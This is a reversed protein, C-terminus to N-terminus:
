PSATQFSRVASWISSQGTTNWAQVRWYYRTNPKLKEGDLFQYNPTSRATILKEQLGQSFANDVAIQLSYQQFTTGAPLSSARWALRPTYGINLAKNAPSVLAPTSPPNASMFSGMTWTSPGNVGNARVRWYITRNQPLSKAPTYATEVPKASLFLTSFNSKVSIQITYSDSGDVASWKFPPRPTLATVGEAPETLSAPLLAARLTFPKSWNSLHGITNSARVRWYYTTNPQLEGSQVVYSPATRDTLFREFALDTFGKDRAVQLQYEKFVTGSPLSSQSWTLKPVYNTTLANNAPSRLKPNSPPNASLFAHSM